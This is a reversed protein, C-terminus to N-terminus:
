AALWFPWGGISVGTAFYPHAFDPTAFSPRPVAASRGTSHYGLASEQELVIISGHPLLEYAVSAGAIGGGIVIFDATKPM